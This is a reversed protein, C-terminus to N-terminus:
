VRLVCTLVGKICVHVWGGQEALEMAQTYDGLAGQWDSLGELALARGSLLRARTTLESAPPLPCTPTPTDSLPWCPPLSSM